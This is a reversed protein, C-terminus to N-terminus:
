TATATPQPTRNTTYTSGDRWLAFLVGALKRAVAVTAIFKGRRREIEMAWQSIPDVPRLRRFNWAAQVLARRVPAPGAKTIATRQQRGSSSKEGPTLGLFSQVAHASPFRARDDLAAVFRMASVPGVGPVSMLRQCVPDDKALGALEADAPAIQANIAEISQLLREVFQPLGDPGQLAADRARKPFTTMDGSRIKLVHTRAWGRVCNILATRAAILEERLTCMSRRQRALDTPVHVSPLDIRCSVESLVQADRRDTKIRRAGVGLSRVLTAPVVRVEHGHGLALDAVHFAESCTELIVRSSPRRKLYPGLRATEVSSEHLIAGDADRICVQSKTGGLDIAVHQM